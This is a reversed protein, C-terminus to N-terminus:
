NSRFSVNFSRRHVLRWLLLLPLLVALGQGVAVLGYIGGLFFLFPSPWVLYMESGTLLFAALTAGILMGAFAMWWSKTWRRLLLLFIAPALWDFAFVPDILMQNTLPM